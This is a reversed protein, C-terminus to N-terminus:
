RLKVVRRRYRHRINRGWPLSKAIETNAQVNMFVGGGTIVKNFPKASVYDKVYDVLNEELAYQNAAIIHDFRSKFGTLKEIEKFANDYLYSSHLKTKITKKNESFYILKKIENKIKLVTKNSKESYGSMGMLKYEDEGDKFGLGRTVGAYFLGLSNDYGMENLKKIKFPNLSVEFVRSSLGDGGADATIVIQEDQSLLLEPYIAFAALGHALHHDLFITENVPMGLDKIKKTISKKGKYGIYINLYKRFQMLIPRLIGRSAIKFILKQFGGLNPNEYFTNNGLNVWPKEFGFGICQIETIAFKKILYDISGQPWGNYNKIGCIREEQVYALNKGGQWIGVSANHGCHITLLEIKM